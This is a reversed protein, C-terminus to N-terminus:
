LLSILDDRASAPRGIVTASKELMRNAIVGMLGRSAGGYVLGLDRECLADALSEAAQRYAPSAGENSGCYVCIRRTASM